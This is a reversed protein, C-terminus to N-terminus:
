PAATATMLGPVSTPLPEGAGEAGTRERWYRARALLAEATPSAEVMKNMWGETREPQNLQRLVGALHTYSEIQKPAHKIAKEYWRAAAAYQEAGEECRAWLYELEGNDPSEKLLIDLHFKADSFRRLAVAIDVVKRRIDQRGPARRLVQDLAFFASLRGRPSQAAKDLTLGYRALADDDSPVLRIYRALYDAEKVFDGQGKARDAYRLMEGANRQVQFAHLFHVGVGLVVVAALLCGLFKFNVTRKM